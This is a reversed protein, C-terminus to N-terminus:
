PGGGLKRRLAEAKDAETKGAPDPTPTYIVDDPPIPQATRYLRLWHAGVSVLIGIGSLIWLIRGITRLVDIVRSM